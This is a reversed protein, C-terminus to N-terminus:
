RTAAKAEALRERIGARLSAQRDSTAALAEEFARAAEAPKGQKLLIGGLTDLYYARRGPMLAIAQRCLQAAEDLREGLECLVDARNNMADANGPAGAFAAEAELLKGQKRLANGLNLAFYSNGPRICLAARYHEAAETFKGDREFWVGLDNHEDASLPWTMREPPCVLLTWRDARDWRRLFEEAPLSLEARTDSHVLVTDGFDLVVFYHVNRGFKGLVILPVGAALKQRLDTANGRYQRAFFNFRRAYGTLDSTLAGRIEPLYIAGAIENQMVPHGYYGAVMALAAPGCQNPEQAIFPVKLAFAFLLATNM